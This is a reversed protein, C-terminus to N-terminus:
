ICVYILSIDWFQVPKIMLLGSESMLFTRYDLGVCKRTQYIQNSKTSFINKKNQLTCTTIDNIVKYINQHFKLPKVPM